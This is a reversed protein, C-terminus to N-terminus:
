KVEIVNLPNICVLLSILLSLFFRCTVSLISNIPYYGQNVELSIFTFHILNHLNDFADKTIGLSKPCFPNRRKEKWIKLEGWFLVFCFVM